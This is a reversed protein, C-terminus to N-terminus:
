IVDPDVRRRTRWCGNVAYALPLSAAWGLSGVITGLLGFVFVAGAVAGYMAFARNARPSMQPTAAAAPYMRRLWEPPHEQSAAASSDASRQVAALTGAPARSTLIGAVIMIGLIAAGVAGLWSTTFTPVNHRRRVIARAVTMGLPALLAGGATILTALGLTIVGVGAMLIRMGVSATRLHVEPQLDLRM